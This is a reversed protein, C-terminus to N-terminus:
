LNKARRGWFLHRLAEFICTFLKMYLRIMDEFKLKRAKTTESNKNGIFFNKFLYIFLYLLFFTKSDDYNLNPLQFQM